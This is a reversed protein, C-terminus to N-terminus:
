AAITSSVGLQRCPSKLHVVGTAAPWLTVRAALRPVCGHVVGRSGAAVDWTRVVGGHRRAQGSDFVVEVLDERTEVLHLVEHRPENM